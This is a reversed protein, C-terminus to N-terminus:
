WFSHPFYWIVYTALGMLLASWWLVLASGMWVKYRTIRFKQPLVSTGAALLIYLAVVEAMIGLTGHVTALAYYARGLKTPIKPLVNARFSPIMTFVILFLNLLVVAAQCCAHSRFHRLRALLAGVLLGLGMALELFLILNAYLPAM